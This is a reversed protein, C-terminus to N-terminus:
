DKPVVGLAQWIGRWVHQLDEIQQVTIADLRKQLAPDMTARQAELYDLIKVVMTEGPLTGSIKLELGGEVQKLVDALTAM